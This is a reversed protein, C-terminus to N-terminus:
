NSVRDIVGTQFLWRRALSKVNATTIQDAPSFRSGAIDLNHLPWNVSQADDGGKGCVVVAAHLWAKM